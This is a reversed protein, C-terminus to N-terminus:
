AIKQAILRKLEDTSKGEVDIGLGKATQRVQEESAGSASAGAPAAAAKAAEANFEDRAKQFQGKAQGMSRALKPIATAGFLLFVVVLIVLLETDGLGLFGM